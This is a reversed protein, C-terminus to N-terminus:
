SGMQMKDVARDVITDEIKWYVFRLQRDSASVKEYDNNISLHMRKGAFTFKSLADIVDDLNDYINIGADPNGDYELQYLKM